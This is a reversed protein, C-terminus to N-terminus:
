AEDPMSGFDGREFDRIADRIEGPTNMVFPGYQVVPEDIPEGSMVLLEADTTASASIREGVNEFLVFDNEKARAGGITVEGKMVLIATNHHAPLDFDVKGKDRLEVAFLDIPTFTKAPGRVGRYSGAVVRVRGAGNELTVEGMESALLPQYGPADMKNAKPLNVWLQAMRFPGGRRGFSTEHFEQHLIGKAATMWQVDGPGIIGGGGTSDKHEVSGEFALTVTEFGRHPHTGVGRRRSTPAYAYTPHYDLLLFPSLRKVADPIVGFYGAVRFGDGVWHLSPPTYIGQIPRAARVSERPATLPTAHQTMDSLM